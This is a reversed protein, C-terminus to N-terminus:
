VYPTTPLTLHTYSVAVPIPSIVPTHDLSPPNTQTSISPGLAIFSKSSSAPAGKDAANGGVRVIEDPLSALCLISNLIGAFFNDSIGSLAVILIPMGEKSIKNLDLCPAIM